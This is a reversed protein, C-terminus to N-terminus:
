AAFRQELRAALPYLRSEELGIRTSLATMIARTERDFGRWDGVIRAIPWSAMYSRFAVNLGGVEDLFVQAEKGTPGGARILPAYVLAEEGALHALLV